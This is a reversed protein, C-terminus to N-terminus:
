DSLWDIDALGFVILLRGWTTWNYILLSGLTTLSGLYFFSNQEVFWNGLTEMAVSSWDGDPVCSFM